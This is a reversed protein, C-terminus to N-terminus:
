LMNFFSLWSSLSSRILVDLSALNKWLGMQPYGIVLLDLLVHQWLFQEFLSFTSFVGSNCGLANHLFSKLCSLHLQLSSSNLLILTLKVEVELLSTTTCVGRNFVVLLFLFVTNM